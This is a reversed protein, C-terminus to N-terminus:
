EHNESKLLKARKKLASKENLAMICTGGFWYEKLGKAKLRKRRLKDIEEKSLPERESFRAGRPNYSAESTMAMAM